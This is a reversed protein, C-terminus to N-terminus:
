METSYRASGRSPDRLPRQATSGNHECAGDCSRVSSSIPSPERTLGDLGNAATTPPFDAMQGFLGPERKHHATTLDSVDRTRAKPETLHDLQDEMFTAASAVLSTDSPDPRSIWIGEVEIGSQLARVGFPIADSKWSEIGCCSIDSQRARKEADLIESRQTIRNKWWLRILGLCFVLAICCGMVFAMQQWLDWDTFFDAMAGPCITIIFLTQVAALLAMGRTVKTKQPRYRRGLRGLLNFSSPQSVLAGSM